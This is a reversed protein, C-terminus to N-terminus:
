LAMWFDDFSNSVTKRNRESKIDNLPLKILGKDGNQAEVIFLLFSLKSAINFSHDVLTMKVQDSKFCKGDDLCVVSQDSALAYNKCFGNRRLENIVRTETDKFVITRQQKM